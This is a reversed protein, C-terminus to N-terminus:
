AYIEWVVPIGTPTTFNATTHIAETTVARRPQAPWADAPGDDVHGRPVHMEFKLYQHTKFSSFFQLLPNIGRGGEARDETRPM